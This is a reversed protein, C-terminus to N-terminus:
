TVYHLYYFDNGIEEIYYSYGPEELRFGKEHAFWEGRCVKRCPNEECYVIRHCSGSISIGGCFDTCVDMFNAESQWGLRDLITSGAIEQLKASKPDKWQLDMVEFLLDENEGVFAVIEAKPDIRHGSVYEEAFFRVYIWGGIVTAAFIVLLAAAAFSEGIKKM